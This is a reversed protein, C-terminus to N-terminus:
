WGASRSCDRDDLIGARAHVAAEAFTAARQALAAFPMACALRQHDHLHRQRQDQEDARPQHDACEARQHMHRGTEDRRIRHLCEAEIDRFRLDRVSLALPHYPHLFLNQVLERRNRSNRGDAEGGGNRHISVIRVIHQKRLVM